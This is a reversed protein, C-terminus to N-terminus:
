SVSFLTMKEPAYSWKPPPRLKKFCVSLPKEAQQTATLLPKSYQIWSQQYLGVSLRPSGALVIALKFTVGPMKLLTEESVSSERGLDGSCWM